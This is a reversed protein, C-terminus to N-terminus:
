ILAKIRQPAALAAFLSTGCGMSAGGAVFQDIGLDDALALMDQALNAWTYDAPNPTDGSQGHGRADYRIVTAIDGLQDWHFWNTFDEAAMSAMLGHAWIFPQGQGTMSVALDIGNIHRTPPSVM